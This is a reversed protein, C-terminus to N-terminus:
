KIDIKKAAPEAQAPRPIRVKLVGDAYDAKVKDPPVDFPLPMRRYFSGYAREVRYYDKEKVESEARREGEIIIDGEELTLKIDEKKVGPLDAEIVLDGNKEYADIRPAWGEPTQTLRVMSRPLLPWTQGWFRSLEQHLDDFISFPSTAVPRRETTVVPAEAKPNKASTEAM